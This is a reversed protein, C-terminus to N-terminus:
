VSSSERLSSNSKRGLCRDKGTLNFSFASISVSCYPSSSVNCHGGDFRWTMVVCTNYIQDQKVDLM